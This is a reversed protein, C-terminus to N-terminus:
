LQQWDHGQPGFQGHGPPTIIQRLSLIPFVIFVIKELVVLIFRTYQTHLLLLHYGLYIRGIMSRSDLNAVGRTMMERLSLIPFRLVIKKESAMLDLAKFEKKILDENKCTVLGVM